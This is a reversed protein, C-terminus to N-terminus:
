SRKLERPSAAKASLSSEAMRKSNPPCTSFAGASLLAAPHGGFGQAGVREHEVARGSVERVLLDERRKLRHLLAAVQVHRDDAHGLRAPVELLELGPGLVAELVVRTGRGVGE